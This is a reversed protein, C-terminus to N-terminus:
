RAHSVKGELKKFSKKAKQKSKLIKVFEQAIESPLDPFVLKYDM